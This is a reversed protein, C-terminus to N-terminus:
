VDALEKATTALEVSYIKVRAEVEVEWFTAKFGTPIRFIEGSTRLERM